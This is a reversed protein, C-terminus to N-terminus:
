VPEEPPLLEDALRVCLDRVFTAQDMARQASARDFLQDPPVGAREDGYFSAGRSGALASSIFAIDPIADAFWTPFRHSNRRLAAAPDHTRAPEAGVIRLAAKLALEVAEQAGRVVSPWSGANAFFALSDVRVLALRLLGRAMTDSTM